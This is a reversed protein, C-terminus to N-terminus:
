YVLILHSHSQATTKLWILREICGGTARIFSLLRKCCECTAYRISSTKNWAASADLNTSFLVSIQRCRTSSWRRKTGRCAETEAAIRVTQWAHSRRRWLDRDVLLVARSVIMRRWCCIVENAEGSSRGWCDPSFRASCFTGSFHWRTYWVLAPSTSSSFRRRISPAFCRRHRGTSHQTCVDGHTCRQWILIYIIKLMSEVACVRCICAKLKRLKTFM